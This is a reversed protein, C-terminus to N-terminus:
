VEWSSVETRLLCVTLTEALDLCKMTVEWLHVGEDYFWARVLQMIIDSM